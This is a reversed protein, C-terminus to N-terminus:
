RTIIELFLAGGIFVMLLNIFTLLKLISLLFGEAISFAMVGFFFEVVVFASGLLYWTKRTGYRFLPELTRIVQMRKVYVGFLIGFGALFPITSSFVAILGALKSSTLGFTDVALSAIALELIALLILWFGFIGILNREYKRIYERM